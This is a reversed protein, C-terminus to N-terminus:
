KGKEKMGSARAVLRRLMESRSPIDQEKRRLEDLAKLLPASLRV